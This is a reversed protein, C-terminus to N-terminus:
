RSKRRDNKGKTERNKGSGGSRAPRSYRASRAAKKRAAEKEKAKEREQAEVFALREKEMQEADQIRDLSIRGIRGNKCDDILM